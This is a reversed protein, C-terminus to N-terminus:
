KVNSLQKIFTDTVNPRHGMYRHEIPTKNGVFCLVYFVLKFKINLRSALV